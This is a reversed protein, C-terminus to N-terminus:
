HKPAVVLIDHDHSDLNAASQEAGYAHKIETFRM